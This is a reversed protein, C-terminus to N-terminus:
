FHDMYSDGYGGSDNQVSPPLKLHNMLHHNLNVSLDIKLQRRESSYDEKL